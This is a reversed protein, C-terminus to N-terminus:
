PLVKEAEAAHARDQALRLAVFLYDLAILADTIGADDGAEVTRLINLPLTLGQNAPHKSLTTWDQWLRNVAPAVLKIEARGAQAGVRLAEETTLSGLLPTM